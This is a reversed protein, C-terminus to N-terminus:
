SAGGFLRYCGYILGLDFITLMAWRIYIVMSEFSSPIKIDFNVPIGAIYTNVSWSPAEGSYENMAKVSDILDFPLSFPFKNTIIEGISSFEGINAKISSMDGLFAASLQGGLVNAIQTVKTLVNTLTNYMSKVANFISSLWGVETEEVPPNFPVSISESLPIDSARKGLLDELTGDIEILRNELRELQELYPTDVEYDVGEYATGSYYEGTVIIGEAYTVSVNKFVLEGDYTFIVEDNVIFDFKTGSRMVGLNIGSFSTDSRIEIVKEVIPTTVDLVQVYAKYDNSTNYNVDYNLVLYKGDSRECNIKVYAYITRTSLQRVAVSDIGEAITFQRISGDLTSFDVAGEELYEVVKGDSWISNWWDRVYDILSKTVVLGTTGALVLKERIDEEANNWFDTAMVRLGDSTTFVIGSAVLLTGIALYPIALNFAEVIEVRIMNFISMILLIAIIKFIVEKKLMRFYVGKVFLFPSYANKM